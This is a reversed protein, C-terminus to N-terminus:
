IEGLAAGFLGRAAVNYMEHYVPSFNNEEFWEKATMKDMRALEGRLSIDPIEDYKDYLEQLRGAFRNFEALSSGKILLRAKGLEGEYFKGDRFVIDAPAPIERLTLSLDEIFEALPGEPKGMYVTGRAFSISRYQGMSARGGVEKQMELLLVDYDELNYAATLGAMGGGVIIVDYVKVADDGEGAGLAAGPMFCVVLFIVLRM